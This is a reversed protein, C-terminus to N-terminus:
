QDLRSFGDRTMSEQDGDALALFYGFMAGLSVGAIVGGGAWEAPSQNAIYGVSAGALGLVAAGFAAGIEPMNLRRRMTEESRDMAHRRLLFSM